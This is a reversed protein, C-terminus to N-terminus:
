LPVISRLVGTSFHTMKLSSCSCSFHCREVPTKVLLKGNYIELITEMRRSCQDTCPWYLILEMYRHQYERKNMIKM